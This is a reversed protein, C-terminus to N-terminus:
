IARKETSECPECSKSALIQKFRRWFSTSIYIRLSEGRWCKIYCTERYVRLVRLVQLCFHTLGNCFAQLSTSECHNEEGAKLMARKETSECPECSKCTLFPNFWRWFSTSIYIRLSEGRWNKIYRTERYVRLARLVQWKGALIQKFQQWFSTSIYIRLSEGRWSKIYRTERYVRLARLVQLGFLYILKSLKTEAM